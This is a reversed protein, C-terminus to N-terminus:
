VALALALEQGCLGGHGVMTQRHPEGRRAETDHGLPKRKSFGEDSPAPEEGDWAVHGAALCQRAGGCHLAHARRCHNEQTQM